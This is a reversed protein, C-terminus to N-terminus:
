CQLQLEILKEAAVDSRVHTRRGHRVTLGTQTGIMQFARGRNSHV